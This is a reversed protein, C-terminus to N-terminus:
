GSKQGAGRINPKDRKLGEYGRLVQEAENPDAGVTVERHSTLAVGHSCSTISM